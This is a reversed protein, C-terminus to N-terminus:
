TEEWSKLKKAGKTLDFPSLGYLQGEVKEDKVYFWTNQWDQVSEAMKFDFYYIDLRVYIIAGGVDYIFTKM